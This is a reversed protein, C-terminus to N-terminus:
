EHEIMTQLGQVEAMVNDLLGNINETMQLQHQITDALEGAGSVMQTVALKSNEGRDAMQKSEQNISVIDTCLSDTAHIIQGLMGDVKEKEAEILGMKYDSIIGLTNTTVYSFSVILLMVAMQIEINVIEGSDVGGSAFRMAIYVMNVLIGGIGVRLTYKKDQYMSIALLMPLIYTFALNSVTTWLVFAYLLGYGYAAVKRVLDSEENKRYLLISIALPTLLIASFVCVYGFTRNGKVLELLYAVFLVMSIITYCWLLKKNAFAKENFAESRKRDGM